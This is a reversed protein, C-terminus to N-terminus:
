RYQIMGHAKLDELFASLDRRAEDPDVEFEAVLAAHIADESHTCAKLLGWIFSGVPNLRELRDQSSDLLIAQDDILRSVVRPSPVPIPM